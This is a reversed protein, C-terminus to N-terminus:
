EGVTKSKQVFEKKMTEIYDAILTWTLGICLGVLTALLIIQARKPKYKYDPPIAPDIVQVMMTERAEDIKATEFQRMMVDYMASAYKVDRLRRQYELGLQPADRLSTTQNEDNTKQVQQQELKSLETRLAVLETTARKLSPNDSQAYTRLSSLEVEKAAVQARMTSISELMAQFQPEMVVLGSKEQYRQLEDEVDDLTKRSQILQQEFFVRRQAAEGITLSQLVNKLEEVFANAMKAARDPNEDVAAVTVIGSKSDEATSLIDSIVLDRMKLRYKGKYLEMLNFQDIIKDVVTQSRLVGIFLQGNTSIGGLGIMGGLGGLQSLMASAASSSGQSSPMIHTEARYIPTAFLCYLVSGGGFLLVLTAILKKRQDFILLSEYLTREQEM